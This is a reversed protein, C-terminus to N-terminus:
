RARQLSRMRSASRARRRSTSRRNAIERKADAVWQMPSVPRGALRRRAAKIQRLTPPHHLMAAVADFITPTVKVVRRRGRREVANGARALQDFIGGPIERIRGSTDQM